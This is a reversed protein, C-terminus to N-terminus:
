FVVEKKSRLTTKVTYGEKLLKLICHVAIFGSGGTVLVTKSKESNTM